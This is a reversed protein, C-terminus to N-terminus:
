FPWFTHFQERMSHLSKQLFEEQSTVEFGLAISIRTVVDDERLSSLDTKFYERWVKRAQEQREERLLPLAAYILPELARKSESHVDDLTSHRPDDLNIRIADKTRLLESEVAKLRKYRESLHFSILGFIFGIFPGFFLAFISWGNM